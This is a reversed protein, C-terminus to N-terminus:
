TRDETALLHPRAIQGLAKGVAACSVPPRIWDEERCAERALSDLALLGLLRGNPDVVPLRRVQHLAMVSLADDVSDDFRCSFLRPSMAAGVEIEALRQDHRLAALCIDRDTLMAVPRRSEDLVVLCGCARDRLKRAALDLRDKPHATEVGRQMVEAIEMADRIDM